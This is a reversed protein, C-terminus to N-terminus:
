ESEAESLAVEAAESAKLAQWAENATHNGYLIALVGPLYHEMVSHVDQRMRRIMEVSLVSDEPIATSAVRLEGDDLDFEFKALFLRYNARTLYEMVTLRKDEPVSFPVYAFLGFRQRGPAVDFVTRSVVPDVHVRTTILVREGDDREAQEYTWGMDDLYTKVAAVMTSDQSAIPTEPQHDMKRTSM